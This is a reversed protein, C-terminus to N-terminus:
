NVIVLGPGALTADAVAQNSTAVTATPVIALITLGNLEHEKFPFEAEVSLTQGQQSTVKYPLVFPVNQQNIYAVEYETAESGSPLEFSLRVVENASKSPDFTEVVTLPQMSHLSQLEATQDLNPCSGPVIFDQVLANFAFDRVSNTLFPLESPIRKNLLRFWGEQEGEQGIVSAVGQSLAADGHSGMNLVVNQLTGLVVSTFTQALTIADEFTSVPFNYLCPAVPTHGFHKLANIANLAHLEEQAVIATLASIALEAANANEIVYGPEANSVNSLLQQFFAAEFQEQAAILQLSIITDPDVKAPPTSNSLTGHARQETNELQQQNPSPFSDINQFEDLVNNNNSRELM